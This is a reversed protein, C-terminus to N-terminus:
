TVTRVHLSAGGNADGGAAKRKKIQVKVELNAAGPIEIVGESWHESVSPMSSSNASVKYVIVDTTDDTVIRAEANQDCVWQWGYIYATTGAGVALSAVTVFPTATATITALGDGAAALADTVTFAEVGTPVITASVSSNKLQVKLFGEPTVNLMTYDGDAETITTDADRRIVMAPIGADTGGAVSDRAKTLGDIATDIESLKALTDADHTYLEGELTTKLEGFDGTVVGSTQTPTKTGSDDVVALTFLGTSGTAFVSSHAYEADSAEVSVVTAVKLRGNSDVQLPSYDGDAVGAHAGDADKRIAGVNLMADTSTATDGGLVRSSIILRGSADLTLEAIEENTLSPLTSLYRGVRLGFDDLVAM